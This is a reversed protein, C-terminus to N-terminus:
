LWSTGVQRSARASTSAHSSGHSPAEMQRRAQLQAQSSQTPYLKARFQMSEADFPDVFYVPVEDEDDEDDYQFQDAGPSDLEVRPPLRM